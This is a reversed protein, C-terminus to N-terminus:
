QEEEEKVTVTLAYKGAKEGQLYLDYSLFLRVKTKFQQYEINHTETLVHFIGYPSKYSGETKQQKKFTQKMTVAGSRNLLVEVKGIKLLTRIEEGDQEEDYKIYISDGKEYLLGKSNTKVIEKRAGDRIDSVVEVSVKKGTSSVSM